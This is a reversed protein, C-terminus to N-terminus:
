AGRLYKTTETAAHCDCELIPHTARTREPGLARPLTGRHRYFPGCPAANQVIESSAVIPAVVVCLVICQATNRCLHAFLSQCTHLGEGEGASSTGM